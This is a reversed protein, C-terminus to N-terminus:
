TPNEISKPTVTYVCQGDGRLICRTKVVPESLMSAILTQDVLCIEPHSQSIHYYPCSNEYVFYQNGDKKWEMLYGEQALINKIMELRQELNLSQLQPSYASAMQNAIQTFIKNVVQSPVTEKVQELIQNTLKLYRTPFRELGAETLSYVLRPRGVGHREEEAFVLKDGELNSLHHRVSIANIGVAKALFSITSQPHNLLTTLIHDRTSKM